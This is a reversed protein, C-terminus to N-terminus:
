YFIVFIQNSDLLITRRLFLSEAESDWCCFRLLLVEASSDWCFLRLLVIETSYDWYFLRLLIIETSFDWCSCTRLLLINTAFDWFIEAVHKWCVLLYWLLIKEPENNDSYLHLHIVCYWSCFRLLIKAFFNKFRM